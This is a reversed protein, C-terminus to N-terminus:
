VGIFDMVTKQTTYDKLFNIVGELDKVRLDTHYTIWDSEMEKCINFTIVKRGMAKAHSIEFLTGITRRGLNAIILQSQYVDILDQKVANEVNEKPIIFDVHKFEDILKERWEKDDMSGALYIKM